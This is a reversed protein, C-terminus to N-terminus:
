IFGSLGFQEQASHEDTLLLFRAPILALHGSEIVLCSNLCLFLVTHTLCARMYSLSAKFERCLCATSVRSSTIEGGGELGQGQLHSGGHQTHFGPRPGPWAFM